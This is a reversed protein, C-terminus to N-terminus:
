ATNKASDGATVEFCSGSIMRAADSALFIVIPAVDDPDIWPVKLPSAEKLGDRAAQEDKSRQGSPRKGRTELAQAYRAEHRTLPTDILGPVLANVTIGHSGLELAASKMLGILGWKSASYAAGHLTGHQGQTSTTIIIRGSSRKVMQPGFARLVNATGTLNTDITINWDADELEMLPHFQQIGANAVLVDIQGLSVSIEAAAKRLAPLDRQDLIVPHWRVGREQVLRGTEELDAPSSPTVGSRTDVVACVDIGVIDTGVSALAIAIARGIGRAAGTIVARKGKLASPSFVSETAKTTETQFDGMMEVTREHRLLIKAYQEWKKPLDDLVSIASVPCVPVVVTSANWQISIINHSTAFEM